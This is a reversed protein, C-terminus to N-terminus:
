RLYKLNRYYLFIFLIPIVLGFIYSQANSFQNSFGLVIPGSIIPLIEGILYIYFGQRKLKRMQIAGYLCLAIAILSPILFAMWNATLVDFMSKLKEFDALEKESMKEAVEPKDAMSIIFGLIKKFILTFLLGFGCGIFTLITLVNLNGPLKGKDPNDLNEAPTTESMIITKTSFLIKSGLNLLGGEIFLLLSDVNIKSTNKSERHLCGKFM